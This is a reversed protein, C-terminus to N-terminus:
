SYLKKSPKRRNSKNGNITGKVIHFLQMQQDAFDEDFQWKLFDLVEDYAIWKKNNKLRKKEISEKM